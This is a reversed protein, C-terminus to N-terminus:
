DNFNPLWYTGESYGQFPCTQNELHNLAAVNLAEKCLNIFFNVPYVLEWRNTFNFGKDTLSNITSLKQYFAYEPVYQGLEFGQGPNRYEHVVSNRYLWLLNEHMLQHPKVGGIKIHTSNQKPWLTLIDELNIDSSIPVHNRSLNNSIPFIRNFKQQALEVLQNTNPPINKTIEFLRVLHLLSVKKSEPWSDCRRVLSIYRERNSTIEPFVSKSIADFISCCLIKSPVNQHTLNQECEATSILEMYYVKFRDVKEELTEQVNM